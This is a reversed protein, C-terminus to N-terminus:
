RNEHEHGWKQGEPPWFNASFRLKRLKEHFSDARNMEDRPNISIPYAEPGRNIKSWLSKFIPSNTPYKKIRHTSILAPTYQGWKHACSTSELPFPRLTHFDSTIPGTTMTSVPPPGCTPENLTLPM